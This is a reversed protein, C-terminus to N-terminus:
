SPEGRRPDQDAAERLAALQEDLLRAVERVMDADVTYGDGCLALLRDRAEEITAEAMALRCTLCTCNQFIGPKRCVVVISLM